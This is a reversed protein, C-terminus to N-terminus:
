QNRPKLFRIWPVRQKQKPYWPTIPFTNRMTREGRPAWPDPFAKEAAEDYLDEASSHASLFRRGFTDQEGPASARRLVKYIYYPPERVLSSLPWTAGSRPTSFSRRLLKQQALLKRRRSESLQKQQPHFQHSTAAHQLMAIAQESSRDRSSCPMEQQQQEEEEIGPSTLRLPPPPPRASTQRSRRRPLRTYTGVKTTTTTSQSPWYTFEDSFTVTKKKASSSSAGELWPLPSFNAIKPGYPTFIVLPPPTPPKPEPYTFDKYTKPSLPPTPPKPELLSIRGFTRFPKTQEVTSSSQQQQQQVALTIQHLSTSTTSDPQKSFTALRRQLEGSCRDSTSINQLQQQLEGSTSVKGTMQVCSPVTLQPIRSSSTTAIINCPTQSEEKAVSGNEEDPQDGTAESEAGVVAQEGETEMEAVLQEQRRRIEVMRTEFSLLQRTLRSLPEITTPMFENTRPVDRPQATEFITLPYGERHQINNNPDEAHEDSPHSLTTSSSPTSSSWASLIPQLIGEFPDPESDHEEHSTHEKHTAHEEHPAHEEQPGRYFSIKPSTRERARIFNPDQDDTTKQLRTGALVTSSTTTIATITTTPTTIKLEMQTNGLEAANSDSEATTIEPKNSTKPKFIQEYIRAADYKPAEPHNIYHKLSLPMTFYRKRPPIPPEFKPSLQGSLRRVLHASPVAARKGHWKRAGELMELEHVERDDLKSMWVNLNDQLLDVAARIDPDYRVYYKGETVAQMALQIARFRDEPMKYYHVSMNLMVGLRLPHYRKLRKTALTLAERYSRAARNHLDDFVDQSVTLSWYRYYDARLKLVYIKLEVNKTNLIFSDIMEIVEKCITIVEYRARYINDRLIRHRLIEQRPIQQQLDMYLDYEKRFKDILNKYFVAFANRELKTLRVGFNKILRRFNERAEDFLSIAETIRIRQMLERRDAVEVEEGM